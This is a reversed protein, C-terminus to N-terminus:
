RTDHRLLRCCRPASFPRITDVGISPVLCTMHEPLTLSVTPSGVQHLVSDSWFVVLRNALPPVDVYASQPSTGHFVRLSGGHEPQWDVNLYYVM